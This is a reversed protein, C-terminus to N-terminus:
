GTRRRERWAFLAYALGVLVLWAIIALASLWTLRSIQSEYPTLSQFVVLYKTAGSNSNIPLVTTAFRLDDRPQWTFTDKGNSPVHRYVDAPPLPLSAPWVVSSALPTRQSPSVELAIVSLVQEPSLASTQQSLGYSKFISEDAGGALQAVLTAGIQAPAFDASGRISQQTFSYACVVIFCGLAAFACFILRRVSV